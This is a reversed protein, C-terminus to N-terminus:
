SQREMRPVEIKKRSVAHVLANKARSSVSSSCVPGGGNKFFVGPAPPVAFSRHFFTSPANFVSIWEITRNNSRWGWLEVAREVKGIELHYAWANARAVYVFISASKSHFSRTEHRWGRKSRSKSTTFLLFLFFLLSSSLSFLLQSFTQAFVKVYLDWLLKRAYVISTLTQIVIAPDCELM